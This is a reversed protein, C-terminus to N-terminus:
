KKNKACFEMTIGLKSSCKTVPNLNKCMNEKNTNAPM